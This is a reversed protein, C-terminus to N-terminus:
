SVYAVLDYKSLPDQVSGAGSATINGYIVSPKGNNNTFNIEFRWVKAIMKNDINSRLYESKQLEYNINNENLVSFIKHVPAWYEDSFIGKTYPDILKNVYNKAMSNSKGDLVNIVKNSSTNEEQNAKKIWGAKKGIIEWQNKSLTIKM